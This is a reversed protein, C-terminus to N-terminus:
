KLYKNINKQHENYTTAYHVIGSKDHLYYLYPSDKPHISSEIAILGPNSIPEDPLGLKKYTDPSADVQLLMGKSIRKWLIGSITPADVEGLAEKQIISAMKIIEDMSHGSKDIDSLLPKIRNKFNETLEGLVEDHTTMAFFFYTDPFLYGQKSKENSVFLDHRFVQLKSVLVRAMEENTLGEKLTIRIPSVGHEGRALMWAVKWVPISEKFLYDGKIIPRGFKFLNVFIKLAFSQRVVNKQELEKSISSLSENNSIHILTGQKNAMSQSMIPASFM